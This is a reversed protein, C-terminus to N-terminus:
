MLRRAPARDGAMAARTAAFAQEVLALHREVYGVDEAMRGDSKAPDSSVPHDNASPASGRDRDDSRRDDDSMGSGRQHDSCPIRPRNRLSGPEPAAAHHMAHGARVSRPARRTARPPKAPSDGLPVRDMVITIRAAPLPPKSAVPPGAPGERLHSRRGDREAAVRGRRLGRRRPPRAPEMALLFDPSMLWVGCAFRLSDAFVLQEIDSVLTDLSEGLLTELLPREGEGLTGSALLRDKLTSVVDGVTADNLAGSLVLRDIYDPVGDDQGLPSRCSGYADEYSLLGQFDVGDFGPQSDELFVGIAAQLEHQANTLDFEPMASWELAHHVSRLLVRADHRRVLDGPGNGRQAEVEEETTWAKVIPDIGYPDAGCRDPTGANFIPDGTM